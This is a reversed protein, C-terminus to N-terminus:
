NGKKETRLPTPSTTFSMYLMSPEILIYCAALSSKIGTKLTFSPSM